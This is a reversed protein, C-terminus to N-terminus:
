LQKRILHVRQLEDPHYLLDEKRTGSQIIHIGPFVRKEVISRDLHIEMNGKGKFEEFIVQDLKSGTDVLVTALLTLSGGEEANRAVSFFKGAKQLAKPDIGGSLLRGK